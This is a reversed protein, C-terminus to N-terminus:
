ENCNLSGTVDYFMTKTEGSIPLKVTVEIVPITLAIFTTVKYYIKGNGDTPCFKKLCYGGNQMTGDGNCGAQEATDYDYGLAKIFAFAKGETSTDTKLQELNFDHLRASDSSYTFGENKEIINIIENKARFAKTYSISYALFGAFLAIFIIVLGTLWTGGMADKM